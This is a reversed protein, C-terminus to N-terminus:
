KLGKLVYDPDKGQEILALAVAEYYKPRFPLKSKITLTATLVAIAVSLNKSDAVLRPKLWKNVLGPNQINAHVFDFIKSIGVM